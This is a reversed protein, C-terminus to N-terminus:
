LGAPRHWGLGNAPQGAIGREGPDRAPTLQFGLDAVGSAASGRGGAPRHLRSVPRTYRAAAIARRLPGVAMVQLVPGLAPRGGQRIKDQKAPTVMAHDMFAAPTKPAPLM